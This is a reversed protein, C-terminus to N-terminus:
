RGALESKLREWEPSNVHGAHQLYPRFYDFSSKLIYALFALILFDWQRREAFIIRQSRFLSKRSARSIETSFKKRLRYAFLMEPLCAFRSTPYSRLLLDQDEARNVNRYRHKRFWEIKGMWTPHPLYFGNWPRACIEEHTQKFPFIGTAAGPAVFTLAKTGLLDIEPHSELYEVQKSFREPFSIDDNDMRAFYKGSALDIAENLRAPLGRNRGDVFIRIRSDNFSRAIEVTRDKSGDDILLLEWNEWTQMLISSIAEGITGEANFSPLVISVLPPNMM